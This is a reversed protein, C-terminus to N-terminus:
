FMLIPVTLPSNSRQIENQQQNAQELTSLNEELIINQNSQFGSSNFSSDKNQLFKLSQTIVRIPRESFLDFEDIKEKVDKEVKNSPFKKENKLNGEIPSLPPFGGGISGISGLSGGTEIKIFDNAGFKNEELEKKPLKNQPKPEVEGEKM